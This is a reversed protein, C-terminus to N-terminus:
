VSLQSQGGGSPAQMFTPGNNSGGQQQQGAAAAGAGTAAGGGSGGGGVPAQIAALYFQHAYNLTQPDAYVRLSTNKGIAHNGYELAEWVALQLGACQEATVAKKFGLSVIKGALPVNGSAKAAPMIKVDYSQGDMIPSRLDACYSSWQRGNQDQFVLRGAFTQEMRGDVQISVMKGEGGAGVFQINTLDAQAAGALSTALPANRAFSVALAGEAVVLGAGATVLLAM